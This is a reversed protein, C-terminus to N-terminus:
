PKKFRSGDVPANNAVGRRMIRILDERVYRLTHASQIGGAQRYDEYYMRVPRTSGDRATEPSERCLLLGSEVAFFLAESVGDPYTALVEFADADELKTRRKVVVNTYSELLKLPDEFEADRRAEILRKGELKEVGYEPTEMWAVTGDFCQQVVGYREVQFGRLLRNPKQYLEAYGGWAGSTPSHLSGMAARSTVGLLAAKGGLAAIYRDIVQDSSPLRPAEQAFTAMAAVGVLLSVVKRM